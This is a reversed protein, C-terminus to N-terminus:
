LLDLAIRVLIRHILLNCLHPVGQTWKVVGSIHWKEFRQTERTHAYHKPATESVPAPLNEEGM